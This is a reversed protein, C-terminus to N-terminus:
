ISSTNNGNSREPFQRQPESQPKSTQGKRSPFALTLSLAGAIDTSPNDGRAQKEGVKSPVPELSEEDDSSPINVINESVANDVANLDLPFVCKRDSSSPGAMSKNSTGDDVSFAALPHVKSSLRGNNTNESLESNTSVVTDLKIKKHELVGDVEAAGNAMEFNRKRAGGSAHPDLAETSIEGTNVPEIDMLDEADNLNIITSEKGSEEQHTSSVSCAVAETNVDFDRESVNGGFTDLTKVDSKKHKLETAMASPGMAGKSNTSDLHDDLARGNVPQHISNEGNLCVEHNSELSPLFNASKVLGSDQEAFSNRDKSFSLSSSLVSTSPDVGRPDEIFNPELRSTPVDSSLNSCDKRSVRFVGWLFYFMNWRQFNKSLTNSPFILLEVADVSGRLVLDNKLMNEVLKSYHNEYSQIDRAFFFLGVNEYTPGNEQFQTPWSNQRPVEELQVKSPFKKAVELVLQSASCSLHAQFGDCLEPSRGTRRLEFGGQWIWDLEPVTSAMPEDGASFAQASEDRRDSPMTCSNDVPIGTTASLTPHDDKFKLKNYDVSATSGPNSLIYRMDQENSRASLPSPKKVHGFSAPLVDKPGYTPNQYTGCKIIQESQNGSRSAAKEAAESTSTESTRNRKASADKMNRESLPKVASVRLKDVACFQTSHGAENCRQCRITRNSSSAGQRLGTSDKIKADRHSPDSNQIVKRQAGPGLIGGLSREPNPPMTSGPVKALLPKKLESNGICSKGGQLHATGLNNSDATNNGTAFPQATTDTKSIVPAIMQATTSPTGLISSCQDNTANQSVLQNVSRPEEAPSLISSKAKNAPECPKPKKFTASKTTMSIPGEKKITSSWSEKFSKPKQPVENLLQKVKPVKSNNFSTSKTLQGRPQPAQNKPANSALSTGVQSPQKGKDADYGFSSERSSLMRKRSDPGMYAGGTESITDRITSTIAADDEMRKKVMDNGKKEPEKNGANEAELENDSSSRSKAAIAPKNMEREFSQGKSTGVKVQSKELKKVKESEVATQCDECLWESEPVDEMMVRMCYTHEAGDNCRSCVALKEEEGVDGCIDCVKVDEVEESSKDDSSTTNVQADSVDDKIEHSGRKDDVGKKAVAAQAHSDDEDAGEQDLHSAVQKSRPSCASVKKTTGSSGKQLIDKSNTSHDQEESASSPGGSSNGSQGIKQLGDSGDLNEENHVVSQSKGVQGEDTDGIENDVADDSDIETDVKKDRLRKASPPARRGRKKRVAVSSTDKIESIWSVVNNRRDSNRAARDANRLRM